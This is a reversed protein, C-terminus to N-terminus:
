ITPLIKKVIYKLCKKKTSRNSKFELRLLKNSLEDISTEKTSKETLKKNSRAIYNQIKSIELFINFDNKPQILGLLNVVLNKKIAKQRGIEYEIFRDNHM